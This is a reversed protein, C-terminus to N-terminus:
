PAQSGERHYLLLLEVVRSYSDMGDSVGNAKLTTDIFVDSLEDVLETDLIATGNIREWEEETVFVDDEYVQRSLRVPPNKDAAEGYAQPNSQMEVYLDNTVYPLVSLCGSYQFYIDDSRICALYSIFNAEDEFIYGRLHALEHCMAAPKNLIYMVDNYNAEMSFPFYYGQMYQQCMFDSFTMPKPRPYYGDLQPYSEGLQRMIEVAKDQMDSIEGNELIGGPYIVKGDEDREVQAALANCRQALGNYLVLLEDVSYKGAGDMRNEGARGFYKESFASAHYLIFCNLTMVLCVLLTTWAFFTYFRGAFGMWKDYLETRLPKEKAFFRHVALVTVTIMAIVVAALVTFLGAVIMWEGVSFPFLGTIRGYTNVWIPFVYAIYADCFGTSNWAIVNLLVTVVAIGTFLKYRRKGKKMFRGQFIEIRRLRPCLLVIHSVPISMARYIERLLIM